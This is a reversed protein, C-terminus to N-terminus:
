LGGPQAGRYLSNVLVGGGRCAVGGLPNGGFINQAVAGARWEGYPPIRSINQGWPVSVWGRGGEGARVLPPSPAGCGNILPGVYPLTILSGGGEVVVMPGLGWRGWIRPFPAPPRDSRVGVALCPSLPASCVPHFHTGWPVVGPM